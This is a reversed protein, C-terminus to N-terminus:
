ASREHWHGCTRKNRTQQQGFLLKGYDCRPQPSGCRHYRHKPKRFLCDPHFGTGHLVIMGKNSKTESETFISLFRHGDAELFVPEGDFLVDLTQDVWRQEREVNTANLPSAMILCVTLLIRM